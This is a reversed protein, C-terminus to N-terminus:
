PRIFRGTQVNCCTLLATQRLLRSPSQRTLGTAVMIGCDVLLDPNASSTAGEPIRTTSRRRYWPGWGRYDWGYGLPLLFFIALFVLWWWWWGSAYWWM